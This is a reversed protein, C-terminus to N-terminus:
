RLAIRRRCLERVKEINMCDYGMLVFEALGASLMRYASPDHRALSKPIGQEAYKLVVVVEGWKKEHL